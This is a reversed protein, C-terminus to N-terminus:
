GNVLTQYFEWQKKALMANTYYQQVHEYGVQGFKQRFSQDALMTRL